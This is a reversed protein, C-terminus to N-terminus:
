HCQCALVPLSAHGPSIIIAEVMKNRLTETPGVHYYHDFNVLPYGAFRDLHRNRRYQNEQWMSYAFGTTTRQLYSALTDADHESWSDYYDTHRGVYPPDLYVFDAATAEAMVTQWDAVRFTWDRTRIVQTVWAVQNVVKTIYAPRFRNPKRCFPVNYNGSRNFRMVGNFCARNLFLFDLPDHSDNFRQRVRYYHEGEQRLLAGERELHQRVSSPTIKEAQLRLYFEIIHRNTDSLIARAPKLNFAVSGSGLFPEIWRGAGQWRISSAIV